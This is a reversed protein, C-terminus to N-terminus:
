SLLYDFIDSRVADRLRYRIEVPKGDTLFGAFDMMGLYYFEKSGEDNKNKRVFLHIPMGNEKHDRVRVMNKSDRGEQSKSLAILTNRNEFRDEYRKWEAM